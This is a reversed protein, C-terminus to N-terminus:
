RGNTGTAQLHQPLFGSPVRCGHEGPKPTPYPWAGKEEFLKVIGPLNRTPVERFEGGLNIAPEASAVAIPGSPLQEAAKRVWNRWTGDWDVKRGGSGPKAPWYDRFKALEIEAKQRGLLRCATAWDDDTPLWDPPLRRGKSASEKTSESPSSKRKIYREGEGEGEKGNRDAVFRTEVHTENQTEDRTGPAVDATEKRSGRWQRLREADAWRKNQFAVKRRFADTAVKSLFVHYLRGDSCKVFGRMVADKVERFKKLSLRAFAANIRDDDPLSAAPRQKWARCWLLVAAGIIENGHLALLESSMLREVNLYFGDLDTCDVDAEVLPPPLDSM